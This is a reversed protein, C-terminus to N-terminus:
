YTTYSFTIGAACCLAMLLNARLVLQPTHMFANVYGTAAPKKQFVGFVNEL